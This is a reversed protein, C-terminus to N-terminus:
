RKFTTNVVSPLSCAIVLWLIENQERLNVRLLYKAIVHVIAIQTSPQGTTAILPLAGFADVIAACVAFVM